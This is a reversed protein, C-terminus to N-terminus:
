PFHDFMYALVDDTNINCVYWFWHRCAKSGVFSWQGDLECIRAM